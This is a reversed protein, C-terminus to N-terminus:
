DANTQGKMAAIATLDRAAQIAKGRWYHLRATDNKHLPEDRQDILRQAVREVTAEDAEVGGGLAELADAALDCTNPWGNQGEERMENAARRLMAVIDLGGAVPNTGVPQGGSRSGDAHTRGYEAVPNAPTARANWAAIAEAETRACHNLPKCDCQTCSVAWQALGPNRHSIGRGGCFPCAKMEGVMDPAEVREALETM